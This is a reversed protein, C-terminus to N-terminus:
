EQPYDGKRFDDSSANWDDPHSIPLLRHQQEHTSDYSTAAEHKMRTHDKILLMEVVQAATQLDEAISGASIQAPSLVTDGDADLDVYFGALKEENARKDVDEADSEKDAFFADSAEQSNYEPCEYSEYDGWFEALEQSFIFAEMYKVAHRRADATLRPVQLATESGRSWSQEFTEYIWLAKGLEEQALVTLSRARGYSERMLLAHADAILGSANDMLGKWFRRATTPHMEMTREEWTPEDAACAM